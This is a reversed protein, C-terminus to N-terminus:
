RSELMEIHASIEALFFAKNAAYQEQLAQDKKDEDKQADDSLGKMFTSVSAQGGSAAATAKAGEADITKKASDLAATAPANAAKKIADANKVKGGTPGLDKMLPAVMATVVKNVLSDLLHTLAVNIANTMLVWIADFVLAVVAALAGGVFPISGVLTVISSEVVSKAGNLATWIAAMGQNFRNNLSPQFIGILKQTVYYTKVDPDKISDLGKQEAEKQINSMAAGIGSVCGMTSQVKALPGMIKDSIMHLVIPIMFEQTKADRIQKKYLDFDQKAKDLKDHTAQKKTEVAALCAKTADAQKKDAADMAIKRDAVCKKQM